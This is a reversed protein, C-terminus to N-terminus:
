PMGREARRTRFCSAMLPGPSAAAVAATAGPIHFLRSYTWGEPPAMAEPVTLPHGTATSPAGVHLAKMGAAIGLGSAKLLAEKVTWAVMLDQWASGGSRWEEIEGPSLVREALRDSGARSPSTEVDVGIDTTPCLAACALRGSHSLSVGPLRKGAIRPKGGPDAVLEVAGPDLGLERATLLRLLVHACAYTLADAPRRLRAHRDMEPETLLALLSDADAAWDASDAWWVVIETPHLRGDVTPTAPADTM